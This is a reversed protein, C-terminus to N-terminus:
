QRNRATPMYSRSILRSPPFISECRGPTAPKNAEPSLRNIEVATPPQQPYNNRFGTPTHHSRAPDFRPNKPRPGPINRVLRLIPWWVIVWSDIFLAVNTSSM